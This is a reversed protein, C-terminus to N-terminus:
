HRLQHLLRLIDSEAGGNRYPLHYLDSTGGQPLPGAEETGPYANLTPSGYGPVLIVPIIEEQAAFAASTGSLLLVFALIWALCKKM